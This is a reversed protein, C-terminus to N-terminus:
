NEELKLNFRNREYSLLGENQMKSLENSMASRDVALYDALEQRNFPIEFKSTGREQAEASLYSLLKERTSKRTIHEMKQTLFVNKKAMIRLMNLILGTHFSCASPCSTIIRKFDILLVTSNEVAIVSIPLKETGACSHAEGFLGSPRVNALITRNGWFDEQVVHVGGSLVIGVSTVPEGTMFVIDGKVYRRESASLCKLLTSLDSDTIGRFLPCQNIIEFHKEM